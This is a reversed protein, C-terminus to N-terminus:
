RRGERREKEKQKRNLEAREEPTEVGDCGHRAGPWEIRMACRRCRGDVWIHSRKGREYNNVGSMRPM